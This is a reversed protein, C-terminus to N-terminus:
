VYLLPPASRNGSLSKTETDNRISNSPHGNRVILREHERHQYDGTGTLDPDTISHVTQGILEM